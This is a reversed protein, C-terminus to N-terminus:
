QFSFPAMAVSLIQDSTFGAGLGGAKVALLLLAFGGRPEAGTWRYSSPVTVSFPAELPVRTVVPRFSALNDPTGVAFDAGGTFFVITGDPLLCSVYIDATEPMGPNTLGVTTVLTQGVAFSPQNVAISLTLPSTLAQRLNAVTRATQNLTRTNDSTSATGIVRGNVTLNPTSFYPIRFCSFGADRCQDNYAMITRVRAVVDVYGHSYPFLIPASGAVFPDHHAAMNHGLEHAFSLNSSACIRDVVSFAASAFTTSNTSMVYGIGCFPPAPGNSTILSVIDARNADRLWAALPHSRLADLDAGFDGSETIAIEGAFVLRVRQALGVNAFAQNTTAMALTVEARMASTGGAAARAARTYLVMVDIQSGADAAVDPVQTAADGAPSDVPDIEAPLASPDIEEVVPTGDPAYGIRYISAPPIVVTGVMAGDHVALMALAHDIGDLRISWTHGRSSHQTVDRITGTFTADPFLNLGIRQGAVVRPSGDSNTMVDLRPKVSRARLARGLTAAPVGSAANVSLAPADFLFPVSDLPAAALREPGVLAPLLLAGILWGVRLRARSGM